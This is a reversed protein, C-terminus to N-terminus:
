SGRDQVIEVTKKIKIIFLKDFGTFGKRRKKNRDFPLCAYKFSKKCSSSKLRPNELAKDNIRKAFFFIFVIFFIYFFTQFNSICNCRRASLSYKITNIYFPFYSYHFYFRINIPMETAQANNKFLPQPSPYM